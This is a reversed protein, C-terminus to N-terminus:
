RRRGSTSTDSIVYSSPHDIAPRKTHYMEHWDKDKRDRRDRDKLSERDKRKDEFVESGLNVMADPDVM